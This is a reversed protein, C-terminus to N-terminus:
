PFKQLAAPKAAICALPHTRKNRLPHVPPPLKELSKKFKVLHIELILRL